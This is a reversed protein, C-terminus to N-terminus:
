IRMGNESSAYVYGHAYVHAAWRPLVTAPQSTEIFTEKGGTSSNM